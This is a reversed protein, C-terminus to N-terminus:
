RDMTEPSSDSESHTLSNQWRSNRSYWGGASLAALRCAYGYRLSCTGIRAFVVRAERGLGCVSNCAGLWRWFLTFTCGIANRRAPGLKILAVGIGASVVILLWGM